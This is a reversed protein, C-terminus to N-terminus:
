LVSGAVRDLNSEVSGFLMETSRARRFYRHLPHEWTFGIGGHVQISEATATSAARATLARAVSAAEPGDDTRRDDLADAADLVTAEALEVAVYVDVLKHKIAQFSGIARGFQKRTTAYDVASDLCFRACGVAEAAILTAVVEDARNLVTPPVTTFATAAVDEFRVSALPRSPDLSERPTCVVGLAHADVTAIVAGDASDVVVLLVDAREADVVVDVSGSVSAQGDVIAVSVNGRGPAPRVLAMRVAGRAIDALAAGMPESPDPAMEVLVSGCLVVTSFFPSSDLLRGLEAVVACLDKLTGGAGDYQEPIAVGHCGLQALVRWSAEGDPVALAEGVAEAIDRQEVTWELTM